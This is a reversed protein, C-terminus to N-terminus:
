GRAQERWDLWWSALYGLGIMLPLLGLGWLGHAGPGDESTAPLALFMAMLGLGGCILVLARRRDAHAVDPEVLLQPPLAVGKDALQLLTQYRAQTQRHRHRLLLLTVLIPATMVALPIFIYILEM